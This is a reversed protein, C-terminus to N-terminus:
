KQILNEFLKIGSEAESFPNNPDSPGSAGFLGLVLRLITFFGLIIAFGIISYTLSWKAAEFGKPDGWALALKVGAYVVYIAFIAGAASVALSLVRSAPCLVSAISTNEM